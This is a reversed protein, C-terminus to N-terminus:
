DSGPKSFIDLMKKESTQPAKLTCLPTAIDSRPIIESATVQKLDDKEKITWKSGSRTALMSINESIWKKTIKRGSHEKLFGEILIAKTSSANNVIYASLDPLLDANTSGSISAAHEGVERADKPSTVKTIEVCAESGAHPDEPVEILAGPVLIEIQFGSCLSPDGHFCAGHNADAAIHDRSVIFPKGSKKSKELCAALAKRSSKKANWSPSRNEPVTVIEEMQQQIAEDEESCIGEDASLYGDAVFFSNEEESTENPGESQLSDRSLSSGEPEDEWDIDSMVEYDLNSEKGFPKRPGIINSASENSGYFPPRKSDCPFWIFKRRWTQVMNSSLGSGTLEQMRQEAAEKADAKQAWTPPLGMYKKKEMMKTQRITNACQKLSAQWEDLVTQQDVNCSLISDLSIPEIKRVCDGAPKPFRKDFHCLDHNESSQCNTEAKSPAQSAFFTKFRNATKNLSDKDKFGTRKALKEMSSEEKKRRIEQEKKEKLREKEEKLKQKKAQKEEEAKIKAAEREKRKLEKEREAIDKLKKKEEAQRLKEAEKALKQRQKEEQLKEVSDQLKLEEELSTLSSSKKFAAVAKDAKEGSNEVLKLVADIARLREGVKTARKKIAAAKSMCSKSLSDRNRVEWQWLGNGEVGENKWDMSETLKVSKNIPDFSKRLMLCAVSARLADVTPQNVSFFPHVVQILETLTMRQGAVFRCLTGESYEVPHQISALDELPPLLGNRKLSSVESELETRTMDVLTKLAGDNLLDPVRPLCEVKKAIDKAPQAEKEMSNPTPKELVDGNARALKRRREFWNSVKKVEIYHKQALESKIEKSPFPDNRFLSELDQLTSETLTSWKRKKSSETCDLREDKDVQGIDESKAKENTEEKPAHEPASLAKCTKIEFADEEQEKKLMLASDELVVIDDDGTVDIVNMDKNKKKNWLASLTGKGEASHNAADTTSKDLTTQPRETNSPLPTLTANEEM